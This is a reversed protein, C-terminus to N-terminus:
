LKDQTFTLIYVEEELKEIKEQASLMYDESNKLVDNLTKTNRYNDPNYKLNKEIYEIPPANGLEIQAM